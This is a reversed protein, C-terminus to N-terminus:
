NRIRCVVEPSHDRVRYYGREYPIYYYGDRYLYNYGNHGRVSCPSPAYRVTPLQVEAEIYGRGPWYAYFRGQCHYYTDYGIVFSIYHTSPLRQLYVYHNHHKPHNYGNRHVHVTTSHHGPVTCGAHCHDEVYQYKHNKNSNNVKKYKQNNKNNKVYSTSKNNTQTSQRKVRTRNNDSSRVENRSTRSSRREQGFINNGSIFIFTGILVTYILQKAKMAELKLNSM